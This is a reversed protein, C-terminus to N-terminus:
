INESNVVVAQSHGSGDKLTEYTLPVSFQRGDAANVVEPPDIVDADPPFHNLVNILEHVKM